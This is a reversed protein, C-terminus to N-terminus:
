RDHPRVGVQDDGAALPQVRQRELLEGLDGLAGAADAVRDLQEAARV